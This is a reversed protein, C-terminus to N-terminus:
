DHWDVLRYHQTALVEEVPDDPRPDGGSVPLDIGGVLLVPEGDCSRGFSIAGRALADELPGDLLPLTVKGGGADWDVDFMAASDCEEGCRLLERWWRGHAWTSLHNPVIDLLCGMRADALAAGLRRLGPDGGLEDRLRTPDTGDYGHTSGPVAETVPSCYLCDIGLAALYPVLAAAGDFDFGPGLQVRYTPGLRGTM